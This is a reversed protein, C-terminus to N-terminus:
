PGNSQAKLDIRCRVEAKQIIQTIPDSGCMWFGYVLIKKSIHAEKRKSGGHSM